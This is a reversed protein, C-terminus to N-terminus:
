RTKDRGGSITSDTARMLWRMLEVATGTGRLMGDAMANCREVGAWAWRTSPPNAWTPRRRGAAYSGADSGQLRSGLSRTM